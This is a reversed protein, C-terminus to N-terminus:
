VLESFGALTTNNSVSVFVFPCFSPPMIQELLALRALLWSWEDDEDEDEDDDDADDDEEEDQLYM